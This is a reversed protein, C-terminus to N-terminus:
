SDTTLVVFSIAHFRFAEICCFFSDASHLLLRCFSLFCKGVHRQCCILRSDTFFEFFYFCFALCLSLAIHLIYRAYIHVM